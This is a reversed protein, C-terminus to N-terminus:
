YLNEYTYTQKALSLSSILKYATRQDVNTLTTTHGLEFNINYITTTYQQGHTDMSVHKDGFQKLTEM